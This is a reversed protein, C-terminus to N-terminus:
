TNFYNSDSRRGHLLYVFWASEAGAAFDGTSIIVPKVQEGGRGTGAGAPLANGAPYPQPQTTHNDNKTEPNFQFSSPFSQTSLFHLAPKTTHLYIRLLWQGPVQTKLEQLTPHPRDTLHM